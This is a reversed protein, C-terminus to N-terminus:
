PMMTRHPPKVKGFLPKRHRNRHHVQPRLGIGLRFV